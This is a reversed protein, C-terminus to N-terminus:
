ATLQWSDLLSRKEPAPSPLARALPGSPMQPTMKHAQWSADSPLALIEADSTLSGPPVVYGAERILRELLEVRGRAENRLFCMLMHTWHSSEFAQAFGDPGHWWCALLVSYPPELEGSYWRRLLDPAVRLVVEARDLGGMVDVLRRFAAPALDPVPLVRVEDPPRHRQNKRRYRDAPDAM